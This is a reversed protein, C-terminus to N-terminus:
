IHILSLSAFYGSQGVAEGNNDIFFQAARSEGNQLHMMNLRYKSRLTKYAVGGLLGILVNREGMQGQQTTAYRMDYITDSTQRQYEGYQIDDYYKYDNKYAASFLYGLKPSVQEEGITREKM